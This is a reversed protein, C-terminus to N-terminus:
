ELSRAQEFAQRMRAIALALSLMLPRDVGTRERHRPPPAQKGVSAKGGRYAESPVM